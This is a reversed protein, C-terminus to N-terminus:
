HGGLLRAVADIDARIQSLLADVSTFRQEARLRARLALRVAHGYLDPIPAAGPGTLLHAEVTLPAGGGSTFTPNHGVNVAAPHRAVVRRQDDLREAWAAYVGTAPLLETDPQLNATPVGITRGRGAGHVVRGEVEPDRGLLLAAREPRGDKIEKRVRTSSCVIEAGPAEPDPVSFAPVVTLRRGEAALLEGLTLTTGSRGKGFTGDYGVCVETAGLGAILVDQVFSAPSRAAFAADFPEEVLVDVGCAAILERKRAAPTILPPAVQPALLRAPHPDFTLAAVQGGAADALDRALRFVRQHGRHVGDFNGIAVVRPGAPLAARGPDRHSSILTMAAMGRPKM